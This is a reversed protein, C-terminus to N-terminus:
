TNRAKIASIRISIRSSAMPTIGPRQANGGILHTVEAGLGVQEVAARQVLAGLGAAVIPLLEVESASDLTQGAPLDAASSDGGQVVAGAMEALAAIM